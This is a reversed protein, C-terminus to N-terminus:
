ASRAVGQPAAGEDAAAPLLAVPRTVSINRFRLVIEWGNSLLINHTFTKTRSGRRGGSAVTRQEVDLEDYLWAVPESHVEVPLVGYAFRPAEALSYVLVVFRAPDSEPQLTITFRSRRGQWMDLVRADYLYISDM